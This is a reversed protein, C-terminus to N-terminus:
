SLDNRNALKRKAREEAVRNKIEDPSLRDIELFLTAARQAAQANSAKQVFVDALKAATCANYFEPLTPSWSFIKEIRATIRGAIISDGGLEFFDDHIGIDNVGLAESWVKAIVAQVATSPVIMPIELNPRDLAPAPLEQRNVKGNPNLPLNKLFVFKSPLM